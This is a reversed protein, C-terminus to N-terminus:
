MMVLLPSNFLTLQLCNQHDDRSWDVYASSCWWWCHLTLFDPISLGSSWRQILRCSCSWKIVLLVAEFLTFYQFGSSWGPSLNASDLRCWIRCPSNFLFDPIIHCNSFNRLLTNYPLLLLVIIYVTSHLTWWLWCCEIFDAIMYHQCSSEKESFIKILRLLNIKSFLECINSVYNWKFSRFIHKKATSMKPALLNFPITVITCICYFFPTGMSQMQSLNSLLMVSVSTKM